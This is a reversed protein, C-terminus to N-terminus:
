ESRPYSQAVDINDALSVEKATGQAKMKELVEPTNTVGSM